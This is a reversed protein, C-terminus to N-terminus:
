VHNITELELGLIICHEGVDYFDLLKGERRFGFREYFNLAVAYLNDSSTDFFLKRVGLERVCDTVYKLLKTGIGHGRYEPAVFFWTGWLIGPWDDKDPCFGIVGVITGEPEDTAVFSRERPSAIRANDTFYGRFYVAANDGDIKQHASIITIVRDLDLQTMERIICNM